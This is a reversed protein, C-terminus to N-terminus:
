TQLRTDAQGQQDQGIGAPDEGGGGVALEDPHFPHRVSVRHHEQATFLDPQDANVRGLGVMRFLRDLREAGLRSFVEALQDLAFLDEQDQILLVLVFVAAGEAVEEEAVEEDVGVQYFFAIGSRGASSRVRGILREEGFEFALGLRLALPHPLFSEERPIPQSAAGLSYERWGM